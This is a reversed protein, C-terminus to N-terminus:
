GDPRAHAQGDPVQLEAHVVRNVPVREEPVEHGQGIDIVVRRLMDVEVHALERETASASGVWCRAAKSPASAWSRVECYQNAILM